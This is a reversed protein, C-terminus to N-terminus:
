ATPTRSSRAGAGVWCPASRTPPGSTRRARTATRTPTRAPPSPAARRGDDRAAPLRAHGRGGRPLAARRHGALCAPLRPGAPRQRLADERLAAGALRRRHRLARLRRRAPRPHRRGGDRRPDPAGHDAGRRRRCPRLPPAPARHDDTGPVQARRGLWRARTSRSRWPPPPAISSPATSSPGSWPLRRCVSCRGGMPASWAASGPRRRDRGACPPPEPTSGAGPASSLLQRRPLRQRRRSGPRRPRGPAQERLAAALRAAAAEVQPREDRWAAAVSALVQRFAPMGHRPEDPFYTGGYFPRGDPTLFVSMPWGGAGTMAQVADMYIADLDPREERDVKIAVFDANLEAATAEDEFSEREM